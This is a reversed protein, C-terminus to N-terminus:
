WVKITRDGAAALRKGEAGFAVAVVGHGAPAPAGPGKFSRIEKVKDVDWLHVGSAADGTALHKGTPDFCVCTVPNRHSLRNLLRRQNADWLRATNDSAASAIRKGDSSFSVDVAAPPEPDTEHKGLYELESKTGGWLRVIQDDGITTLRGGADFALARVPGPVRERPDGASLLGP